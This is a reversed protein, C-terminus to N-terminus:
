GHSVGQSPEPLVRPREDRENKEGKRRRLRQTAFAFGGFAFGLIDTTLGPKILLLAAAFFFITEYWKTKQYM